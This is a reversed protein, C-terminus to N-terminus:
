TTPKLKDLVPPGQGIPEGNECVHQDADITIVTERGIEHVFTLCIRGENKVTPLRKYRRVYAVAVKESFRSNWFSFSGTHSLLRNIEQQERIADYSAVAMEVFLAPHSATFPYEVHLMTVSRKGLHIDGIHVWDEGERKRAYIEDTKENDPSIRVDVELVKKLAQIWKAVKTLFASQNKLTDM